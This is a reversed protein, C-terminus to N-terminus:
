PRGRGTPRRPPSTPRALLEADRSPEFWTPTPVHGGAVLLSGDPMVTATHGWRATELSSAPTWRAAAPDFLEVTALPYGSADRGGAVVVVGNGLLSTTHKSRGPGMRGALQLRGTAPTWLLTLGSGEADALLVRGDALGVAVPRQWDDPLPVVRTLTGAVPDFATVERGGVILVRGDALQVLGPELLRRSVTGVEAWSGDAPDFILVSSADQAPFDGWLGGAVLVRGDDLAVASHDWRNHPPQQGVEWSDTAPDYVASKVTPFSSESGAVLVRGDGLLTATAGLFDAPPEAAGSWTSTWPDFIEATRPGGGVVLVRGDTLVAAAAEGREGAMPPAAAWQWCPLDTCVVIPGQHGCTADGLSATVSWVYTGASVYAHNTTTDGGSGGDGFEWGYFPAGDCNATELSGSFVVPIGPWATASASADCWLACGSGLDAALVISDGADVIDSVTVNTPVGDYRHSSPLSLTDFAD